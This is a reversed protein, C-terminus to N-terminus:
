RPTRVVIVPAHSGAAVATAVSDLVMPEFRGRGRSGVVVLGAERAETLLWHAPRDCFFSGDCNRSMPMSPHRRDTSASPLRGPRARPTM